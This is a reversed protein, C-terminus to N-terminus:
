ITIQQQSLTVSISFFIYLILLHYEVLINKMTVEEFNFSIYNVVGNHGDLNYLLKIVPLDDPSLLTSNKKCNVYLLIVMIIFITKLMM